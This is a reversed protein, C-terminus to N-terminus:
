MEHHNGNEGCVLMLACPLAWCIKADIIAMYIPRILPPSVRIWVPMSRQGLMPPPRIPIMPWAGCAMSSAPFVLILTISHRNM